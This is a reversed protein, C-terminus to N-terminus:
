CFYPNIVVWLSFQFPQWIARLQCQFALFILKTFIFVAYLITGLFVLAWGRSNSQYIGSDSPHLERFRGMEMTLLLVASVSGLVSWEPRHTLPTTVIIVEVQGPPFPTPRSHGREELSAAQQQSKIPQLPAITVSVANSLSMGCRFVM